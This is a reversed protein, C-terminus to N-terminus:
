RRLSLSAIVRSQEEIIGLLRRVDLSEARTPAPSDQYKAKWSYYTMESIGVERCVSPITKGAQRMDWIRAWLDRRQTETYPAHTRDSLHETVRVSM